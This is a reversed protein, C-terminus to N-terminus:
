ADPIMVHRGSPFAQIELIRLVLVFFMDTILEGDYSAVGTLLHSDAFTDDKLFEKRFISTVCM